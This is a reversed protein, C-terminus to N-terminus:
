LFVLMFFWSYSLFKVQLHTYGPMLVDIENEARAYFVRIFEKLILLLGKIEDRLWLRM